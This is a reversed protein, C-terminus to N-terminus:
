PCPFAFSDLNSFYPFSIIIKSSSTGFDYGIVIDLFEKNEDSQNEVYENFCSKWKKLQEKTSSSLM